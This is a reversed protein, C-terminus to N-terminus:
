AACRSHAKEVASRSSLNRGARGRHVYLLHVHVRHSILCATCVVLLDDLSVHVVVENELDEQILHPLTERRDGRNYMNDAAQNPKHTIYM